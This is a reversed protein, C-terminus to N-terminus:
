AAIAESIAIERALRFAREEQRVIYGHYLAVAIDSKLLEEAWERSWQIAISCDRGSKAQIRLFARELERCRSVLDARANM